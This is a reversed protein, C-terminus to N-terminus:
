VSIDDIDDLNWAHEHGVVSFGAHHYLGDDKALEATTRLAAVLAGQRHAEACAARMIASAAGRGRATPLTAVSWVNAVGDVILFSGTSVVQGNEGIALYTMTGPAHFFDADVDAQAAAAAAQGTYVQLVVARLQRFSEADTAITAALGPPLEAVAEPSSLDLAMMTHPGDTARRAGLSELLSVAAPDFSAAVGRVQVHGGPARRRSDRVSRLVEALAVGSGPVLRVEYRHSNNADGPGWLCFGGPVEEPLITVKPRPLSALRRLGQLEATFVLVDDTIMAALITSRTPRRM